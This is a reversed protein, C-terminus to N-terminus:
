DFDNTILLSSLAVEEATKNAPHIADVRMGRWAGERLRLVDRLGGKWTLM